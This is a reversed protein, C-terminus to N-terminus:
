IIIKLINFVQCLSERNKRISKFVYKLDTMKKMLLYKFVFNEIDIIYNQSTLDLDFKSNFIETM